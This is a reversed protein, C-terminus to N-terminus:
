SQLGENDTTFRAYGLLDAVDLANLATDDPLNDYADQAVRAALREYTTM